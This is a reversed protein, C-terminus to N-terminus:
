FELDADGDCAADRRRLVREVRDHRQVYQAAPPSMYGILDLITERDAKIHREHIPEAHSIRNRLLRMADLRWHLDRRGGPYHPFAHRLTPRWLRTEYNRGKGLLAIWFGFHLEAVMADPEGSKGRRSLKTAAEALLGKAVDHLDVRSGLWWDARGTMVALRNHLANRLVVELCGLPGSLAASVEVNWTYLRLARAGDGNCHKIYPEMRAPSFATLLREFEEDM